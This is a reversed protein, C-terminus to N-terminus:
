TEQSTATLGATGSYSNAPVTQLATDIWYSAIPLFSGKLFDRGRLHIGSEYVDVVYGESEEYVETLSGDVIDRPVTLSPIHVSRYGFAESYNAKEDVEQLYFKLHSHGHFFVTNKYHKLLSKFVEGKTGVFLDGYAYAVKANGSDGWPFVHQFVFCRRDRNAELTEYLWQLLADTFIEGEANSCCGVMIFVDDGHTFSYYLPQGTYPELQATTATGTDNCEHNGSIAYVPTGPSYTDVASKYQALEEETGNATLDGCICTFAVQETENLWTLARRLDTEASSYTMHVDSLAGFSYQKQGAGPIALPGLPILGVRNGRSNYIGIRRAGPLAANEPIFATYASM